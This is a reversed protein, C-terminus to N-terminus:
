DGDGDRGNMILFLYMSDRLKGGNRASREDKASTVNFPVFLGNRFPPPLFM